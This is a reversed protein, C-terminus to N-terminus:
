EDDENVLYKLRMNMEVMQYGNSNKGIPSINVLSCLKIWIHSSQKDTRLNNLAEKLYKCASNIDGGKTVVAIQVETKYYDCDGYTKQEQGYNEFIGVDGEHDERLSQQFVSHNVVRNEDVIKGDDGLGYGSPLRNRIHEFLSNTTDNM